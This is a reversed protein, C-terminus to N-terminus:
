LEINLNWVCFGKSVSNNSKKGTIEEFLVMM